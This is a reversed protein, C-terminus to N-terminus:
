VNNHELIIDPVAPPTNSMESFSGASPFDSEKGEIEWVFVM